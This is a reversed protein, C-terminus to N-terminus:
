STFGITLRVIVLGDIMVSRETVCGARDGHIINLVNHCPGKALAFKRRFDSAVLIKDITSSMRFHGKAIGM